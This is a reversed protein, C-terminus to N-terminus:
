AEGGSLAVDTILNDIYTDIDRLYNAKIVVGNNNTLLTMNPSISTIGEVLGFSNSQATQSEKYPEYELYNADAICIRFNTITATTGQSQKWDFGNSYVIMRPNDIKPTVRWAQQPKLFVSGGDYVNVVIGESETDFTVADYYFVYTVGAKLFSTNRYDLVGKFTVMSPVDFLNKGYRSVEINSFDGIYPTYPNGVSGKTLWVRVRCDIVDGVAGAAIYVWYKNIFAKKTIDVIHTTDGVVFDPVIGVARWNVTTPIDNSNSFYCYFTRDTSGEILTASITYYSGIEALIDTQCLDLQIASATACTGHLHFIGDGEYEVSMGNSSETRILSADFLNKSRLRVDVNHEVANVDNVVIATGSVKANMYESDQLLEIKGLPKGETYGKSYVEQIKDVFNQANIKDSTELVSKFKNALTSLYEKLM